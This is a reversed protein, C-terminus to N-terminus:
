EKFYVREKPDFIQFKDRAPGQLVETKGMIFFGGANLCDYFDGYLKSKATLSFYIVTNRCFIIDINAPRFAHIDAAKYQIMRLLEPNAKFLGDGADSFYRDKLKPDAERFQQEEYEANKAREVTAPDIDTAVINVTLRQIGAELFCIAISLPEEGSSCGASWVTVRSLKKEQKLRALTPIVEDKFVLWMEKDRFFNTVHISLEKSLSKREDESKQLLANYDGLSDMSNARLRVEVRRAVFTDSYQSCDFGVLNSITKKVKDFLEKDKIELLVM